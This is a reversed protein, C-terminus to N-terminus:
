RTCTGEQIERRSVMVHSLEKDVIGVAPQRKTKSTELRAEYDAVNKEASTEGESSAVQQEWDELYHSRIPQYFALCLEHKLMTM